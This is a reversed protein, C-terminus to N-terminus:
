CFDYPESGGSLRFEMAGLVTNPLQKFKSGGRLNVEGEGRLILNHNSCVSGREEGKM